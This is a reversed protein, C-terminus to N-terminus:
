LHNPHQFIQKHRSAGSGGSSVKVVYNRIILAKSVLHLILYKLMILYQRLNDLLYFNDKDDLYVNVMVVVIKSFLCFVGTEWLFM